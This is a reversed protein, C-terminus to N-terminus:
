YSLIKKKTDYREYVNKTREFTQERLKKEFVEIESVPPIQSEIKPLSKKKGGALTAELIFNLESPRPNKYAEGKNTNLSKAKQRSTTDAKLTRLIKPMKQLSTIESTLRKFGENEIKEFFSKYHNSQYRLSNKYGRTIDPHISLKISDLDQDTPAPMRFYSHNKEAKPSILNSAAPIPFIRKGISHSPNKKIDIYHNSKFYSPCDDSIANSNIRKSSDM